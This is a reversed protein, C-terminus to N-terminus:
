YAKQVYDKQAKGVEANRNDPGQSINNVVKYHVQEQMCHLASWKLGRVLTFCSEKSMPLLHVIAELESRGALKEGYRWNNQVQKGAKIGFIISDM